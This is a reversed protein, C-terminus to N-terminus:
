SRRWHYLVRGHTGYLFWCLEEKLGSFFHVGVLPESALILSFYFSSPDRRFRLAISDVFPDFHSRPELGACDSSASSSAPADAPFVCSEVGACRAAASSSASAGARLFGLRAGGAAASSSASADAPPPLVLFRLAERPVDSYVSDEKSAFVM